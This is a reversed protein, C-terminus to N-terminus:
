GRVRLMGLWKEESDIIEQGHSSTSKTRFIMGAMMSQGEIKFVGAAACWPSGKGGDGPLRAHQFFMHAFGRSSLQAPWSRALPRHSAVVRALEPVISNLVDGMEDPPPLNRVRGVPAVVIAALRVPTNYFELVPPGPPPGQNGLAMVDIRLNTPAAVSRNQRGSRIKWLILVAVIAIAALLAVAMTTSLGLMNLVRDLPGGVM